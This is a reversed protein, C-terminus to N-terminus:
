VVHAAQAFAADTAQADGIEADLALNGPVHDWLQPAGPRIAEAALTVAPLPEWAIEIREAADTAGALTEAVVMAVAEGASSAPESSRCCSRSPPSASAATATACRCTPAWTRAAWPM